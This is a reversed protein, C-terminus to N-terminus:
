RHWLPLRTQERSQVVGPLPFGRLRPPDPRPPPLPYDFIHVAATASKLDDEQGVALENGDPSFALSYIRRNCLVMGTLEGTAVDFVRVQFFPRFPGQYKATEGIALSKSDPSFALCDVCVGRSTLEGGPFTRTADRTTDWLTAVDEGGSWFGGYALSRGDPAFAVHWGAHRKPLERLLKGSAPDWLKLRGLRETSALARGDPSFAVAM